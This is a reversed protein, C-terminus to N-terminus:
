KKSFHYHRRKWFWFPFLLTAIFFEFTFGFTFFSILVQLTQEIFTVYIEFYLFAALTFFIILIGLWANKFDQNSPAIATTLALALYLFIWFMWNRFELYFVQIIGQGVKIIESFFSTLSWEKFEFFLFKDEFGFLYMLGFLTLTCGFLPAMATFPVGIIPIKPKTHTVSGGKKSFLSVDTIKAGMCKGVIGHSLEHILIGPWIIWRYRAKPFLESLFWDLIRSFIIVLVLWVFFLSLLLM